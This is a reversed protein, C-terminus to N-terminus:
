GSHADGLFRAILAACEPGREEPPAHGVGALEVVEAREFVGRWRPLFAGFAPDQMGWVLLAPIGAMRERRRWLSDYWDSAGMIERVYAWTAHRQGPGLAADYHAHVASTYRTRDAVARRLMVRVSFGLREYLLRGPPSSMIEDPDLWSPRV